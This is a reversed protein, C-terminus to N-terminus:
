LSKRTESKNWASNSESPSPVAGDAYQRIAVEFGERFADEAIRRVILVMKDKGFLMADMIEDEVSNMQDERNSQHKARVEAQVDGVDRPLADAAKGARGALHLVLDRLYRHM